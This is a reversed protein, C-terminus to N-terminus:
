LAAVADAVSAFSAVIAGGMVHLWLGSSDDDQIIQVSSLKARLKSTAVHSRTRAKARDERSASADALSRRNAHARGLPVAYTNCKRAM